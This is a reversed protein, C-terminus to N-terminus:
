CLKRIHLNHLLRYRDRMQLIWCKNTDTTIDLAMIKSIQTELDLFWKLHQKVFNDCNCEKCNEHTFAPIQQFLIVNIGDLIELICQVLSLRDKQPKQLEIQIKDVYWGIYLNSKDSVSTIVDM